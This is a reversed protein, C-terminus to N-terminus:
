QRPGQEQPEEGNGLGGDEEPETTSDVPPNMLGPEERGRGAVILDDVEQQISNTAQYVIDVTSHLAKDAIIHDEFMSPLSLILASCQDTCFFFKRMALKKTGTRRQVCSLYLKM